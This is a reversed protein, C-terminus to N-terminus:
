RRTVRRLMFYAKSDFESLFVQDVVQFGFHEYFPINQENTELYCALGFQDLISLVPNLLKSAHGKKQQEPHVALNYLYLHPFNAHERHKNKCVEDYVRMKKLWSRGAMLIPILIGSRIYQWDSIYIKDSSLWAAIGELNPSSAFVRGHNITYKLTTHMLKELFKLNKPAKKFQFEEEAEYYAKAMVKEALKIDSKKLQYLDISEWIKIM